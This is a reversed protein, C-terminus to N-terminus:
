AMMVRRLAWFQRAGCAKKALHLEDFLCLSIPLGQLASEKAPLVKYKGAGDATMIGRTETARKFRKRMFPNNRVVFLVRDYIIQAQELSSALSLMNAGPVHMLFGYVGALLGGLVSKGNQRGMSVVIQRYRLEGPHKPHDAPYRELMHRLLWKQWEDLQFAGNGDPTAWAVEALRILKDGDTIFHDSLPKTYRAPLRLM